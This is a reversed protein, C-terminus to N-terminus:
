VFVLRQELKQVAKEKEIAIDPIDADLMLTFLNLILNAQRRLINFASFCFGHFARYHTSFLVCIVAQFGESRLNM